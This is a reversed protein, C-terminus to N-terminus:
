LLSESVLTNSVYLHFLFYNNMNTCCYSLSSTDANLISSFRSTNTVFFKVMIFDTKKPIHNLHLRILANGHGRAKCFCLYCSFNFM